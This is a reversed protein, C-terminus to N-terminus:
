PAGRRSDGAALAEIATAVRRRVETRWRALDLESGPGGFFRMLGALADERMAASHLRTGWRAFHDRSRRSNPRVDRYVYAVRTDVGTEDLEWATRGVYEGAYAFEIRAPADIEIVEALWEVREGGPRAGAFRFRGGPRLRADPGEPTVTILTWWRAYTSLDILAEFCRLRPVAIRCEDRCRYGVDETV